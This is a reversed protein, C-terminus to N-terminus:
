KGLSTDLDSPQPIEMTVFHHNFWMAIDVNFVMPIAGIGAVLATVIGVQYPLVAFIINERNKQQIKLLTKSAEEYDVNDVM